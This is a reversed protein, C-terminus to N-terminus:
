QLFSLVFWSHVLLYMNKKAVYKYSLFFTYKTKFHEQHPLLFLNIIDWNETCTMDFGFPCMFLASTSCVSSCHNGQAVASTCNDWNCGSTVLTKRAVIKVQSYSSLGVRTIWVQINPLDTILVSFLYIEWKM